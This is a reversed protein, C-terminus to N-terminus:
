SGEKRVTPIVKEARVIVYQTSNNERPQWINFSFKAVEVSTAAVFCYHLEADPNGKERYTLKYTKKKVM